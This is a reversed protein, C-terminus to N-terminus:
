RGTIKRARKRSATASTREKTSRRGIAKRALELRLLKELSAKTPDFDLLAAQFVEDVTEVPIYTMEKSVRRPVDKLDKINERPVIM